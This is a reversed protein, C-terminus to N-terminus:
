CRFLYHRKGDDEPCTCPNPEGGAFSENALEWDSTIGTPHERNLIEAIELIAAERDVCVSCYCVGSAYVDIEELM